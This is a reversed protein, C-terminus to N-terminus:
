HTCALPQLWASTDPNNMPGVLGIGDALQTTGYVSEFDLLSMTASTASAMWMPSPPLGGAGYFVHGGRAAVWSSSNSISISPDSIVQVVGNIPLSGSPDILAFQLGKMTPSSQYTLVLGLQSTAPDVAAGHDGSINAGFGLNENIDLQSVPSTDGCNVHVYARGDVTAVPAAQLDSGKTLRFADVHWTCDLWPVSPNGGSCTAVQGTDHCDTTPNIRETTLWIQTPTAAAVAGSPPPFTRTAQPMQAIQQAVSPSPNTMSVFPDVDVATVALPSGARDKGRGFVALTGSSGASLAMAWLDSNDSQALTVVTIAPGKKRVLVVNSDDSVLVDVGDSRRLAVVSAPDFAWARQYATDDLLVQSTGAATASVVRVSRNVDIALLTGQSDSGAFLWAAGAPPTYLTVAASGLHLGLCSSSGGGAGGSSTGGVGGAGSGAAGAAGMGTSGGSGGKDGTGKGSGCGVFGCGVVIAMAVTAAVM